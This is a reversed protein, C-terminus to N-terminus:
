PLNVWQGAEERAQHVTIRDADYTGWLFGHQWRLPTLMTAAYDMDLECACGGVIGRALTDHETFRPVAVSEIHHCHGLVVDGYVEAHKRAANQGHGFGHVFLTQGLRYGVRKNYPLWTTAPSAAKIRDWLQSCLFRLHGTDSAMSRALRDDHNGMTVVNPRYWDLLDCGAEVDAEITERKEEDRAARRLWRFDFLDGGHIRCDPKYDEVVARFTALTGAHAKDGHTDSIWVWRYM